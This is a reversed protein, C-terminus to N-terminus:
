KIRDLIISQARHMLPYADIIEVFGAWDIEEIQLNKKNITPSDMGIESLDKIRLIYYIMQSKFSGDKKYMPSDYVEPDLKDPSIDLGTEEKVERIAADLSDEGTEIGGKPIGLAGSGKWTAGTPHVLLIKTGWLIAVGAVNKPKDNGETIYEYFGKVM